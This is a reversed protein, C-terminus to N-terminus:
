GRVKEIVDAYLSPEDEFAVRTALRSVLAANRKAVAFIQEQEADPVEVDQLGMASAHVSRGTDETM